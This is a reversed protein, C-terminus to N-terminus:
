REPRTRARARRALAHTVTPSVANAQVDAFVTAASIAAVAATKFMTNMLSM